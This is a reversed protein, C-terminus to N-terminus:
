SKPASPPTPSTTKKVPRQSLWRWLLWIPVGFLLLFPLWVIVFGILLDVFAQLGTLLKEFSQRVTVGPDWAPVVFPETKVNPQLQITVLSLATAQDYYNLQGQIVEIQERKAVLENYVALVDETRKAEAMIKELQTEAAKLNRLRSELDTYDSTIDQGSRSEGKVEVAFAKIETLAADLRKADVRLQVYGTKVSKLQSNGINRMEESINATTVYGGYKTALATLAASTAPVDDVVLTLDATYIVLRKDTPANAGTNGGDSTVLDRAPAAGRSISEDYMAEEAISAQTEMEFVQPQAAQPASCAALGTLCLCAISIFFLKRTFM